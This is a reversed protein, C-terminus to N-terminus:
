ERKWLSLTLKLIYRWLLMITSYKIQWPSSFKKKQQGLVALFDRRIVVNRELGGADSNAKFMKFLIFAIYGILDKKITTSWCLFPPISTSYSICYFAGIFSLSTHIRSTMSFQLCKTKIDKYMYHLLKPHTYICYCKLTSTNTLRNKPPTPAPFPFSIDM